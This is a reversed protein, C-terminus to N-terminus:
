VVLGVKNHCYIMDCLLFSIKNRARAALCEFTYSSKSSGMWSHKSTPKSLKSNAKNPKDGIGDM